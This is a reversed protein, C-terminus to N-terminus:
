YYNLAHNVQIKYVIDYNSRNDERTKIMLGNSSEHM